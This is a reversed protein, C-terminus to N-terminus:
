YRDVFQKKKKLVSEQSLSHSRYVTSSKACVVNIYTNSISHEGVGLFPLLHLFAKLITDFPLFNVTLYMNPYNKRLHYALSFFRFCFYKLRISFCDSSASYSHTYFFSNFRQFSSILTFTFNSLRTWSQSVMSQLRSPEETQPIKWALISSHTAMEKELLDEWGLSQVQTEWVTPLHKVMQAVLSTQRSASCTEKIATTWSDWMPTWSMQSCAKSSGRIELITSM